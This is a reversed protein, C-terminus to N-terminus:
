AARAVTIMRESDQHFPGLAYDGFIQVDAFGAGQLLKAMTESSRLFFVSPIELRAIRGDPFLEHYAWVVDVRRQTRDVKEQAYVQVPHSTEPDVFEALPEDEIEDGILAEDPNPLDLALLGSMRLHRRVAGLCSRAEADGLNAFTNCPVITLGYEQPLTFDRLDAQCLEWRAMTELPMRLRARALMGVDHDIGTVRYGASALAGLVRGSGCGLELIPGPHQAALSLWLDLDETFAAYHAELLRPLDRPLLANVEEMGM